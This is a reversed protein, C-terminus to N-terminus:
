LHGNEGEGWGAVVDSDDFALFVMVTFFYTVDLESRTPLVFSLNQWFLKYMEYNNRIKAFSFM